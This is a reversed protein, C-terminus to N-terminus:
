SFRVLESNVKNVDQMALMTRIVDRSGNIYAVAREKVAEDHLRGVRFRVPNATSALAV